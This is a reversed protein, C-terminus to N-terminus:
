KHFSAYLGVARVSAKEQEALRMQEDYGARIAALERIHRSESERLDDQRQIAARVLDLVNATPDVVPTGHRDVGPGPSSTGPLRVEDGAPM